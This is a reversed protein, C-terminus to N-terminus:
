GWTLRRLIKRSEFSRDGDSEVVHCDREWGITCKEGGRVERKTNFGKLEYCVGKVQIFVVTEYAGLM